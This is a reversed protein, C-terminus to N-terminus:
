NNDAPSYMIQTVFKGSYRTICAVTLVDNRISTTMLHNLIVHNPISSEKSSAYYSSDARRLPPRNHFSGASTTSMTSNSPQMYTPQPILSSSHTPTLPPPHGQPQMKNLLVNNLHPPLHPPEALEYDPAKQKFYDYNVFMEPIESSYELQPQSIRSDQKFLSTSSTSMDYPMDYSNPYVYHQEHDQDHDQEEQEAHEVHEVNSNEKSLRQLFSNSKEKIREVESKGAIINADYDTSAGVHNPQNSSHNFLHTDDIVEFWNFFIGEQDTATPLQDSVRYENNIIYLLKHVGLPLNINTVYENDHKPSPSLKIVDRWASFSGIISIKSIPERSTNVWKIEVPILLSNTNSKFRKQHFQQNIHQQQQQQQQEPNPSPSHANRAQQAASITSQPASPPFSPPHASLPLSIDGHTGNSVKTFKVKSLDPPPSYINHEIPHEEHVVDMVESQEEDPLINRSVSTDDTEMLVDDLENFEDEILDNTFNNYEASQESENSHGSEMPGSSVSNPNFLRIQQPVHYPQQKSSPHAISSQSHAVSSHGLGGQNQMLTSQSSHVYGHQSISTSQSSTPKVQHLILDSFEEDLSTVKHSATSKRVDSNTSEKRASSKRSGSSLGVGNSAHNNSSSSTTNGM